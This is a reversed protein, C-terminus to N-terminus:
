DLSAIITAIKQKMEDDADSHLLGLRYEFEARNREPDRKFRDVAFNVEFAIQGPEANNTIAADLADDLDTAEIGELANDAEPEIEPKKGVEESVSPLDYNDVNQEPTDNKKPFWGKKAM